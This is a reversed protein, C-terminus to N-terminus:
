SKLLFQILGTQHSNVEVNYLIKWDLQTCIPFTKIEEKGIEIYKIEKRANYSGTITSLFDLLINLLLQSLPFDKV